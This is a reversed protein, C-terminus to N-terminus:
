SRRESVEPTKSEGFNLTNGDPDAIMFERMGYSETRLPHMMEVGKKKFEDHFADVGTVKLYCAGKGAKLGSQDVGLSLDIQDRSVIAFIDGNKFTAKFGLKNRYFELSVQLDRVPFGPMVSNIKPWLAAEAMGECFSQPIDAESLQVLQEVLHLREEPPLAKIERLLESVSM